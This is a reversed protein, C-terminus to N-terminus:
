ALDSHASGAVFPLSKVKRGASLSVQASIRLGAITQPAIQSRTDTQGQFFKFCPSFTLLALSYM